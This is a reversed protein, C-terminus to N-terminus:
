NTEQKAVCLASEDSRSASTHIKAKKLVICFVSVSFCFDLCITNRTQILLFFLPKRESIQDILHNFSIALCLIYILVLQSITHSDTLTNHTCTSTYMKCIRVVTACQIILPWQTLTCQILEDHVLACQSVTYYICVCVCVSYWNRHQQRCSNSVVAANKVAAM